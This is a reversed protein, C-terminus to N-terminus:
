SAPWARVGDKWGLVWGRSPPVRDDRLELIATAERFVAIRAPRLLRVGVVQLTADLGVAWLNRAIVMGHVSRGPILVGWGPPVAHIGALRRLFGEAVMM